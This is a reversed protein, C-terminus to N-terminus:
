ESTFNLNSEARAKSLFTLTKQKVVFRVRGPPCALSVLIQKYYVNFFYVKANKMDKTTLMEM